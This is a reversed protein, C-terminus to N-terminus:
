QISTLDLDTIEQNYSGLEVQMVNGPPLHHKAGLAHGIEHKAVAKTFPFLGGDCILMFVGVAIGAPESGDESCSMPSISGRGRSESILIPVRRHPARTFWEEAAEIIAEQQWETFRPSIAIEQLRESSCSTLCFLVVAIASRKVAGCLMDIVTTLYGGFGAQAVPDMHVWGM